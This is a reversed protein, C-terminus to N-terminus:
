DARAGPLLGASGTSPPTIIHTQAVTFEILGNQDGAYWTVPPDLSRGDKTFRVLKGPVGCGPRVEDSLVAILKSPASPVHVVDRVVACDMGDIEAGDATFTDIRMSDGGAVFTFEDPSSMGPEFTFTGAVQTEMIVSFRDGKSPCGARVDSGVVIVTALLDQMYSEVCGVTANTFPPAERSFTVHDQPVGRVIAEGHIEMVTRGLDHVFFLVPFDRYVDTPVPLSLPSVPLWGFRPQLFFCEYGRNGVDRARGVADGNADTTFLLYHDGCGEYANAAAIGREGPDERGNGNVDDVVRVHVYGPPLPTATPAPTGAAAPKPTAAAGPSASRWAGFALVLAATIALVIWPAIRTM